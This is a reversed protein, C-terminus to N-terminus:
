YGYRKLEKELKRMEIEYEKNIKQMETKYQNYIEKEHQMESWTLFTLGIVTLVASLIVGKICSSAKLPKEGKM